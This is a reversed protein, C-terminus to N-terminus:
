MGRKTKSGTKNILKLLFIDREEIIDPVMRKVTGVSSLADVVEKRVRKFRDILESRQIAPENTTVDLEKRKERM